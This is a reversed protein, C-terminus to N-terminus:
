FAIKLMVGEYNRISVKMDELICSNSLVGAIKSAM